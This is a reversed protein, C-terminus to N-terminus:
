VTIIEEHLKLEYISHLQFLTSRHNDKIFYLFTWLYPLSYLIKDFIM